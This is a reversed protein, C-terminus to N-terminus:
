AYALKPLVVHGLDIRHDHNCYKAGNPTLWLRSGCRDCVSIKKNIVVKWGGKGNRVAIKNSNM